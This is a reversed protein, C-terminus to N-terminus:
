GLNLGVLFWKLLKLSRDAKNITAKKVNVVTYMSLFVGTELKLLYRVYEKM